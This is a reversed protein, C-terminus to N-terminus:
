LLSSVCCTKNLNKVVAGLTEPLFLTILKGLGAMSSQHKGKGKRERKRERKWLATRVHKKLHMLDVAKMGFLCRGSFLASPMSPEKVCQVTLESVLEIVWACYGKRSNRLLSDWISVRNIFTNWKPSGKFTLTKHVYLLPHINRPNPCYLIKGQLLSDIYWILPEHGLYVLLVKQKSKRWLGSGLKTSSSEAQILFGCTWGEKYNFITVYHM